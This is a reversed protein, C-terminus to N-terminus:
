CNVKKSKAQNNIQMILVSLIVPVLILFPFVYRFAGNVPGLMAVGIIIFAQLFWIMNMRTKQKLVLCLIVACCWFWFASNLLLGIITTSNLKFLLGTIIKNSLNAHYYDYGDVYNTYEYKSASGNLPKNNWTYLPSNISYIPYIFGIHSTIFSDIYIKPNHLGIELWLKYFGAKDKNLPVANFQKKRDQYDGSLTWIPYKVTSKVFDYNDPNYTKSLREYDLYKSLSQRESQTIGQPYNKSVRAIQQLPVAMTEMPETPLVKFLPLLLVNSLLVFIIGSSIVISILRKTNKIYGDSVKLLLVGLLAALLYLVGDNRTLGVILSSTLLLVYHSKSYKKVRGTFLAYCWLLECIFLVYGAMFYITKDVTISWMPFIPFFVFFMYVWLAYRKNILRNLTLVLYSIVSTMAVINLVTVILVGINPNKTVRWGINFLNGILVTTLYPHHNTLYFKKTGFPASYFQNIQDMGDWGWIGPSFIFLILFWVLSAVVMYLFWTKLNSKPQKSNIVISKSYVLKGAYQIIVSFFVTYALVLWIFLFLGKVTFINSISKFNEEIRGLGISISLVASIFVTWIKDPMSIKNIETKILFLICFSSQVLSVVQILYNESQFYGSNNFQLSMGLSLFVFLVIYYIHKRITKVEM